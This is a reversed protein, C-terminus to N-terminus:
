RRVLLVGLRKAKSTLGNRTLGLLRAAGAKNRGASAFAQLIRQRELEEVERELTMPPRFADDGGGSSDGRSSLPPDPAGNEEWRIHDSEIVGGSPCRAVAGGVTSHLERINGPWSHAKLRELARRSIGRVVKGQQEGARRAFELALMPLDGERERLPPLRFELGRLRYYLDARFSGLRVMQELDRNSASVVRVDVRVPRSVGLPQVECEQVARLLKAQLPLALDGIEDLFLTGRDARVFHGPRRDVGTAVRAGVGFMEAELLEAPIAACNVVVFDGQRTPNSAHLLHALLDKGTGTEGLLMVPERSGLTAEVQRLLARVAVSEGIMMGEPVIVKGSTATVHRPHPSSNTRRESQSARAAVYALFDRRWAERVPVSGASVWRLTAPGAGVEEVLSGASADFLFELSGAGELIAEEGGRLDVLALAGGGLVEAAERLLQSPHLEGVEFRRVLRLAAEQGSPVFEAVESAASAGVSSAIPLSVACEADMSDVAELRLTAFGITVEDGPQLIAKQVQRGARRLGNTSGLDVVVLGQETWEVRAHRRSIGRFRVCWGASSSSGLEIPSGPLDFLRVKGDCFLVVRLM